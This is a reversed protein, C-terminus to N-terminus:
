IQAADEGEKVIYPIKINNGGGGGRGGWYVGSYKNLKSITIKTNYQSSYLIKAWM